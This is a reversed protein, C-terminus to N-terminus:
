DDVKLTNELFGEDRPEQWTKRPQLLQVLSVKIVEVLVCPLCWWIVHFSKMPFQSFINKGDSGFNQSISPQFILSFFVEIRIFAASIQPTQNLQIIQGELKSKDSGSQQTTQCETKMVTEINDHFKKRLFLADLVLTATVGVFIRM